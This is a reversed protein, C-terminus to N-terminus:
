IVIIFIGALLTTAAFLIAAYQQVKGTQIRRFVQGGGEATAGSGNVVTDVVKQDINDYVWTGARTAGIGAANVVGDIGKQNFWYAAKAIPGSIGAAIIGTYLHDFYYKNELFLYGTRAM